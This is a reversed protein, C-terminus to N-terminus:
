GRGLGPSLLVPGVVTAYTAGQLGAVFLCNAGHLLSQLADATGEDLSLHYQGQAVLAHQHEVTVQGTPRDRAGTAGIRANSEAPHAVGDLQSVLGRQDAQM